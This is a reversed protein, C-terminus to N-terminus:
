IKCLTRTKSKIGKQEKRTKQLVMIKVAQVRGVGRKTWSWTEVGYPLVPLYYTKHLM